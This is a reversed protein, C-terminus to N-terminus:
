YRLIKGVYNCDYANVSKFSLSQFSAPEVPTECVSRVENGHTIYIAENASTGFVCAQRITALEEASLLSFMPWKSVDM